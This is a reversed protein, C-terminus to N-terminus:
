QTSILARLERGLLQEDGMNLEVLRRLHSISDLGIHTCEFGLYQDEVHALRVDMIVHTEDSLHINATFTQETVPHWNLPKEVLLGKLSVDLLKVSWHLPGQSIKTQADFHIRTFRRREAPHQHM